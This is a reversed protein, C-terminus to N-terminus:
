GLSLLFYLSFRGWLLFFFPSVPVRLLIFISGFSPLFYLSIRVRPSPLYYVFFSGPPLLFYFSFRFRLLFFYFLFGLWSFSYVRDRLLYVIFSVLICGDGKTDFLFFCEQYDAVQDETFGPKEPM